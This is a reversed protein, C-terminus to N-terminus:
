DFVLAIIIFLGLGVVTIIAAGIAQDLGHHYYNWGAVAGVIMLMATWWGAPTGESLCTLFLILFFLVACAILIGAAIDVM